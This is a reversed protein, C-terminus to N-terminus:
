AFFRRRASQVINVVEVRVADFGTGLIALDGKKAPFSEGFAIALSPIRKVYVQPDPGMPDFRLRALEAGDVLPADAPYPFEKEIPNTTPNWGVMESPLAEPFTMATQVVRHKDSNWFSNLITLPHLAPDAGHYPQLGEIFTWADGQPDIGQLPDRNKPACVVRQIFNEQSTHIPFANSRRPRNGERRVFQWVLHDLASRLNHIFDGVIVGLRIPADEILM